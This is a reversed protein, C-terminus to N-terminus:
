SQALENGLFSGSFCQEGIMPHRLQRANWALVAVDVL